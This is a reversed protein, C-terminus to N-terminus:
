DFIDSMVYKSYFIVCGIICYLKAETMRTLIDFSLFRFNKNLIIINKSFLHRDSIVFTCSIHFFMFFSIVCLYFLNSKRNCLSCYKGCYKRTLGVDPQTDYKRCFLM